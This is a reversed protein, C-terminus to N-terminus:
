APTPLCPRRRSTHRHRDCHPSRTQGHSRRSPPEGTWSRSCSSSSCTPQRLPPSPNTSTVRPRTTRAAPLANRYAAPEVTVQPPPPPALIFPSTCSAPEAAAATITSRRHPPFRCAEWPQQGGRLPISLGAGLAAGPVTQETRPGARRNAVPLRCAALPCGAYRSPGAASSRCDAPAGSAGAAARRSAAVLPARCVAACGGADTSNSASNQCDIM